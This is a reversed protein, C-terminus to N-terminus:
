ASTSVSQKLANVWDGLDNLSKSGADQGILQDRRLLVLTPIARLGFKVALDHKADVNIKVVLTEPNLESFQEFVPNMAKCPACWTAWFDLLLWEYKHALDGLEDFSNLNVIAM